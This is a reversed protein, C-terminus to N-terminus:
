LTPVGPLRQQAPDDRRKELKQVEEVFDGSDEFRRYISAYRVFAVKDLDRLAEMVREGIAM